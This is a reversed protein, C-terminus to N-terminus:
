FGFVVVGEAIDFSLIQLCLASRVWDVQFTM